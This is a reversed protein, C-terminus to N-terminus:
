TMVVGSPGPDDEPQPGGGIDHPRVKLWANALFKGGAVEQLLKELFDGFEDGRESILAVQTRRTNFPKFSSSLERFAEEREEGISNALFLFYLGESEELASFISSIDVTSGASDILM